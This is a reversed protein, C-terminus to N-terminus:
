LFHQHIEADTASVERLCPLGELVHYGFSQNLLVYRELALQFLQWSWKNTYIMCVPFSPPLNPLTLM